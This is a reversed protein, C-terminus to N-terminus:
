AKIKAMHGRVVQLRVQLGVAVMSVLVLHRLQQRLHAKLPASMRRWSPCPAAAASAPARQHQRRRWPLKHQASCVHNQTWAALTELMVQWSAAESQATSRQATCTRAASCCTRSLGLLSCRSYRHQGGQSQQSCKAYLSYAVPAVERMRANGQSRLLFVAPSRWHQQVLAARQFM